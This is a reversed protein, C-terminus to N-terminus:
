RHLLCKTRPNSTKLKPYKGHENLDSYPCKRIDPSDGADKICVRADKSNQVKVRQDLNGVQAM